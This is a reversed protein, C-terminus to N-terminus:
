LQQLPGGGAVEEDLSPEPLRFPRRERGGAELQPHLDGRADVPRPVGRLSRQENKEVGQVLPHLPHPLLAEFPAM